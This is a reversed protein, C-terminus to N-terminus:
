TPRVHVPGLSLEGALGEPRICIRSNVGIVSSGPVGSGTVSEEDVVQAAYQLTARVGEQPLEPYAAVVRKVTYGGAIMGLINRVM